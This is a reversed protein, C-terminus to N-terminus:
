GPPIESPGEPTEESPMAKNLTAGSGESPTAESGEGSSESPPPETECSATASNDAETSEAVEGAPNVTVAMTEGGCDFSVTTSEGAALGSVEESGGGVEDGGEVTATVEFPGADVSSDNSIEVSVSSGSGVTVTLNALPEPKPRGHEETGSQGEGKREHPTQGSSKTEVPGGGTTGDSGSARAILGGTLLVVAGIAGIAGAIRIRRMALAHARSMVAGLHPADISLEANATEITARLTEIENV